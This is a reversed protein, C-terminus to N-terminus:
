AFLWYLTLRETSSGFENCCSYLLEDLRDQPLPMAEWGAGFVDDDDSMAYEIGLENAGKERSAAGYRRCDPTIFSHSIHAPTMRVWIVLWVSLISEIVLRIRPLAVLPSPLASVCLILTSLIRCGQHFCM